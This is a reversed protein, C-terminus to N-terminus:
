RAPVGVRERVLQALGNDEWRKPFSYYYDLTSKDAEWIKHIVEDIHREADNAAELINETIFMRIEDETFWKAVNYRDEPPLKLLYVVERDGLKGYAGQYRNEAMDENGEESDEKCEEEYKDQISQEIISNENLMLESGYTGLFDSFTRCAELEIDDLQMERKLIEDPIVIERKEWYDLGAKLEEDVERRNTGQLMRHLIDIYGGEWCLCDDRTEPYDFMLASYHNGTEGPRYYNEFLYSLYDCRYSLGSNDIEMLLATVKDNNIVDQYSSYEEPVLQDYTKIGELTHPVLLTNNYVIVGKATIFVVDRDNKAFDKYQERFVTGIRELKFIENSIRDPRMGYLCSALNSYDTYGGFEALLRLIEKGVEGVAGEQDVQDSNLDQGLADSLEMINNIGSIGEKEWKSINQPTTHVLDALQQQSMGKAMRIQRCRVGCEKAYDRKEM